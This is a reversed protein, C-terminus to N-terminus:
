TWSKTWAQVANSETNYSYICRRREENSFTLLSIRETPDPERKTSDILGILASLWELCVATVAGFHPQLLLSYKQSM